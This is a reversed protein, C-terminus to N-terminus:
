FHTDTINSNNSELIAFCFSVRCLSVDFGFSYCQHLTEKYLKQINTKENEDLDAVDEITLKMDVQTIAETIRCRLEMAASQYVCM